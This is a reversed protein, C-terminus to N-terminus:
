QVPFLCGDTKEARGDDAVDEDDGDDDDDDDDNDTFAADSHSDDLM